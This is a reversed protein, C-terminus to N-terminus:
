GLDGLLNRKIATLENNTLHSVRHRIILEYQLFMVREIASM